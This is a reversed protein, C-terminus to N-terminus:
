AFMASWREQMGEPSVSEKRTAGDEACRALQQGLAPGGGHRHFAHAGARPHAFGRDAAPPGVAMGDGHGREHLVFGFRRRTPRCSGVPRCTVDIIAAAVM